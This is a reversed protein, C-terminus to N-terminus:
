KSYEEYLAKLAQRIKESPVKVKNVDEYLCKICTRYIEDVNEEYDWEHECHEVICEEEHDECEREDNFAAGCHECTYKM